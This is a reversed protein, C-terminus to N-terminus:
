SRSRAAAEVAGRETVGRRADDREVPGVRRLEGVVPVVGADRVRVEPVDAQFAPEDLVDPTEHLPAEGEWPSSATRTSPADTVGFRKERSLAFGASPRSKVAASPASKPKSDTMMGSRRATARGIRPRVRVDDTAGDEDVLALELDDAHHGLAKAMRLPFPRRPDRVVGALLRVPRRPRHEGDAPERRAGGEGLRPELEFGDGRPQLAAMGVGVQSPAEM